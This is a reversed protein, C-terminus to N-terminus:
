RDSNLHERISFSGESCPLNRGLLCSTRIQLFEFEKVRSKQKSGNDTNTTLTAAYSAKKEPERLTIKGHYEKRRSASRETPTEPRQKAPLKLKTLQNLQNSLPPNKRLLSGVEIEDNVIEMM